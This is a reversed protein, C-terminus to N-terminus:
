NGKGQRIFLSSGEANREVNHYTELNQASVSCLNVNVM